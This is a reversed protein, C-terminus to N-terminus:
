VFLIAIAAGACLGLTQYSRLRNSKNNSLELLTRECNTRIRQLETVQGDIDFRGLNNGLDELHARIFNDSIDSKEIAAHMCRYVNPTIQADLENSLLLFVRSIKGSIQRSGEMCLQPLPTHRYQLECELFYLLSVLNQFQRIKQSYQTALLFGCGGCAVIICIGGIIKLNM